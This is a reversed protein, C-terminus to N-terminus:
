RPTLRELTAGDLRVAFEDVLLEVPGALAQALVVLLDVADGDADQFTIAEGTRIVRYQTQYATRDEM